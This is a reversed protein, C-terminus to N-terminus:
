IQNPVTAFQNCYWTHATSLIKVVWIDLTHTLTLRDTFSSVLLWLHLLTHIFSNPKVEVSLLPPGGFHISCSLQCGESLGGDENATPSMMTRDGNKVEEKRLLPLTLNKRRGESKLSSRKEKGDCLSVCLYVWSWKGRKPVEAAEPPPFLSCVAILTPCTCAM